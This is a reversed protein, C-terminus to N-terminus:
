EVRSSLDYDLSPDDDPNLDLDPSFKALLRLKVSSLYVFYHINIACCSVLLGVVVM